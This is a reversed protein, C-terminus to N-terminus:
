LLYIRGEFPELDLVDSALSSGEAESGNSILLKAKSVDIDKPINFTSKEGRGTGRAMNLIVLLKENKTKDDRVYAYTSENDEDIPVFIGYILAEYQKRIRLMKKWFALVSADDKSQASVNWEKYDDHVRMWPTGKSFGANDSDDWQMPTRGNDRATQRMYKLVDSVDPNAEGTAKKRHQREGEIEQITEIDKYEEEGWSRPVNCLGWEQGQYIFITGGLSCHFMSLLKASKARDEPHDSAIRSITRPQDHNELYNSNWGGEKEMEVQWHNFVKKFDSLKWDFNATRGFGGRGRDFGQHHFHFVMQLEKNSPISYPAFASVPEDGPCEGVCFLDYQELVEKYMEKLFDHVRPRNISLNGFPQYERSPDVIPADPFGPAKSTFNIVDMRFGDCGQKMWWHMMDWIAKRVTPNEWNLDPQEKLFTHCYWQDTTEDYEWAPGAGFISKWNNPPKKEGKENVKSPQWIYWDRKSNDISSKSEKFWAHEDSTHNVVLDMVLKMGRKHLEDRLEKWDDLTGYRKDLAQYDSIDYGMDALPSQYIPSLWLIDVGLDKLYPVKSTIGKITGFGSSGHDCFSAPYVQYVTASKWWARDSPKEVKPALIQNSSM